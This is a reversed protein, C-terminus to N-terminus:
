RGGAIARARAAPITVTGVAGSAPDRVAMRLEYADARVDIQRRLVLGERDAQARMEPTFRLPVNVDVARLLRGDALAQAIAVDVSAALHDGDAHFLLARTDIRMELRLSGGGLPVATVTLQLGTADVPSSLARYVSQQRTTADQPPGPLALYGTRHRVELGPKRVTVKVDHFRGDWTGSPPYYGLVYLVQSDDVARGIAGGLDNTNFYARGGTLDAILRMSDVNPMVTSSDTFVTQQAGPMSTITAILGRADVPYVAVDADTIARTARNMETNMSRRQTVGLGLGDTFSAPFAASVWILNKRGQVGSLHRAIAELADLTFEARNALYFGKVAVDVRALAAFTMSDLAADGSPALEPGPEEAVAAERSTMREVRDLARLLSSTDRTFDHVVRVVSSDLVYFAVPETQPVQSLYKFIHDRARKQDSWQTNLRDFLVVTVGGAARGKIANSFVNPDTTAAPSPAAARREVNFLAISQERGNDVVRFDEATLADVPQNRKDHVVASIRVLQTGSRFTPTQASSPAPSQAILGVAALGFVCACIWARVSM